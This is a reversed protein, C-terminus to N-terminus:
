RGEKLAVKFSVASRLAGTDILPTNKGKKRITLPSNPAYARRSIADKIDAACLAGLQGLAQKVSLKGNVIMAALDRSANIWEEGHMLAAQKLMPRPPIRSPKTVGIARIYGKPEKDAKKPAKPKGQAQLATQGLKSTKKLFVIEGKNNILYPQGGKLVAGDSLIAALQPFTLTREPTNGSEAFWGAQVKGNKLSYLNKLATKNVRRIVKMNKGLSRNM